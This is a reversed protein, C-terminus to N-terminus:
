VIFFKQDLHFYSSTHMRISGRWPLLMAETMFPITRKITM